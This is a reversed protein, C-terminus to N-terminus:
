RCGSAMQRLRPANPATRVAAGEHVSQSRRFQYPSYRLAALLAPLAVAGVLIAIGLPVPAEIATEAGSFTVLSALWAGGTVVYLADLTVSIVVAQAIRADLTLDDYQFGRLGRRVLGFVLGPVVMVVVVAVGFASTPVPM